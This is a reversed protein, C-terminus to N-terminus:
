GIKKKKKPIEFRYTRVSRKSRTERCFRNGAGSTDKVRGLFERWLDFGDDDCRRERGDEIEAFVQTM